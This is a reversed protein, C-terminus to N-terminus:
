KNSEIRRILRRARERLMQMQTAMDTVILDGEDTYGTPEGIDNHEPMVSKMREIMLMLDVAIDNLPVAM